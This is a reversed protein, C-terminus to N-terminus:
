LVYTTQKEVIVPSLKNPLTHESGGIPIQAKFIPLFTHILM